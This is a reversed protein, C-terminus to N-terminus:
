VHHGVRPACVCHSHFTRFGRSLFFTTPIESVHLFNMLASMFPDVLEISADMRATKIGLADMRAAIPELKLVACRTPVNFAFRQIM